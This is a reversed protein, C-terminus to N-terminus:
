AVYARSGSQRLLTLDDRLAHFISPFANLDSPVHLRRCALHPIARGFWTLQRSLCDASSLFNGFSAGVLALMTERKSLPVVSPARVDGRELIYIARLPLSRPSYYRDTLPLWIQRKDTQLAHRPFDAPDGWLRAVSDPWLRMQPPGPHAAVGDDGLELALVDDSLLPCGAGVCYAILSSKGHGTPAMIAVAEGGINVAGAHLVPRDLRHLVFSTVLSLFLYRILEDDIHPRHRCHVRGREAVVTFDIGRHYRFLVGDATEFVTLSLYGDTRHEHLV